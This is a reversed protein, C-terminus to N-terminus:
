KVAFILLLIIVFAFLGLAEVLGAAPYVYKKLQEEAEPNRAIGNLMNSFISAVGLAAGGMVFAVLGIAIYKLSESCLM